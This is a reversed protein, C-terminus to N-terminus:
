KKLSPCNSFIKLKVLNNFIRITCWGSGTLHSFVHRGEELPCCLRFVIITFLHSQFSQHQEREQNWYSVIPFAVLPTNDLAPFNDVFWFLLIIRNLFIIKICHLLTSLPAIKSRVRDDDVNMPKSVWFGISIAVTCELWFMKSEVTPIIIFNLNFVTFVFHRM